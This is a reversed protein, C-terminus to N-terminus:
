RRDLQSSQSNQDDLPTASITFRLMVSPMGLGIEDRDVLMHPETIRYGNLFTGNVSGVDLLLYHQEAREIQAHLRSVLRRPVIVRCLPSRGLTCITNDLRYIAPQIDDDVAIIRAYPNIDSRQPM